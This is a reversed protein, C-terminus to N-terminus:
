KAPTLQHNTLVIRRVQSKEASGSTVQTHTAPLDLRGVRSWSDHYTEVKKLSGTAPDWYTISYASPLLKGEGNRYNALIRNSFRGEPTTRNVETIEDGKVRYSSFFSDPPLKILRGLPHESNTEAFTAGPDLETPGDLGRHTVLSRLQSRAWDKGPGAPADLEVAGDSAVTLKGRVVEAGVYIAVDASFGPFGPGWCVRADHARQLVADATETAASGDASEAITLTAYHRIESYRKGGREGSAPEVVRVLFALKRAEAAPVPVLGQEDTVLERTDADDSFAKVKVGALPKGKWTARISCKEGTGAFELSPRESPAAATNSPSTQARASYQLLFTAGDRELVGYDCSAQVSSPLRSLSAEWAAEGKKLVVPEGDSSAAVREIKGLLEPEEPHPQEALFVLARHQGASTEIRVWVYHARASAPVAVVVMLGVLAFLNRRSM